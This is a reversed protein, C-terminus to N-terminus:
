LLAATPGSQHNLLGLDYIASPSSEPQASSHMCWGKLVASVYMMCPSQTSCKLRPKKVDFLRSFHNCPSSQPNLFRTEDCCGLHPPVNVSSKRMLKQPRRQPLRGFFSFLYLERRSHANEKLCGQTWVSGDLSNYGPMWAHVSPRKWCCRDSVSRRRNTKGAAWPRLRDVSRSFAPTPKLKLHCAGLRCRKM